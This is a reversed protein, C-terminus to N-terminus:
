CVDMGEGFVSFIENNGEYRYISYGYRGRRSGSILIETPPKNDIDTFEIIQNEYPANHSNSFSYGDENDFVIIMENSDEQLRAYILVLDERGDNNADGSAIKYIKNKPYTEKFFLYRPDDESINNDEVTLNQNNSYGIYGLILVIIFLLIRTLTKSKTYKSGNMNSIQSM